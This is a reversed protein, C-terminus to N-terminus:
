ITDPPSERWLAQVRELGREFEQKLRRPALMMITRSGYLVAPALRSHAVSQAPSPGPRFAVLALVLVAATLIGRLLGFAAGLLRDFWRLGAAKVLMSLLRAVIWGTLIFLIVIVLFSIFGAVAPSSTYPELYRAPEPYWWLATLVGAILAALAVLERTLGRRVSGIVSAVVILVIAIDLWNV